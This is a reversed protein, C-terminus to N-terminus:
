FFRVILFIDFEGLVYYENLKVMFFIKMLYLGGYIRKCKKWIFVIM